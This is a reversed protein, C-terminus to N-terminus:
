LPQFLLTQDVCLINLRVNRLQPERTQKGPWLFTRTCTDPRFVDEAEPSM